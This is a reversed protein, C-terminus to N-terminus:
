YAEQKTSNPVSTGSSSQSTASIHLPVLRILLVIILQPTCWRCSNLLFIFNNYNNNNKIQQGHQMKNELKWYLPLHFLSTTRFLFPPTNSLMQGIAQGAQCFLLFSLFCLSIHNLHPHIWQQFILPPPMSGSRKSLRTRHHRFVRIFAMVESRLTISAKSKLLMIQSGVTELHRTSTWMIPSLDLQTCKTPSSTLYNYRSNLNM